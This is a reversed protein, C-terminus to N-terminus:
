NTRAEQARALYAPDYMGWTSGPSSTFEAFARDFDDYDRYTGDAQTVRIVTAM